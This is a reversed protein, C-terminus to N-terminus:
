LLLLDQELFKQGMNKKKLYSMRYSSVLAYRVAVIFARIVTLMITMHYEYPLINPLPYTFYIVTM